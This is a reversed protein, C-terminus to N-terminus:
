KNFNGLTAALTKSLLQLPALDYKKIDVASILLEWIPIYYYYYCDRTIGRKALADALCDPSRKLDEGVHKLAYRSEVVAALAM